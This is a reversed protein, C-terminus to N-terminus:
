SIVSSTQSTSPTIFSDVILFYQIIVKFILSCLEHFYSFLCYVKTPVTTCIHRPKRHRKNDQEQSFFGYCKEPNQSSDLQNIFNDVEDCVLKNSINLSNTRLMQQKNVISIQTLYMTIVLLTPTICSCNWSRYVCTRCSSYFKELNLYVM